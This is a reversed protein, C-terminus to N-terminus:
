TWEKKQIELKPAWNYKVKNIGQHMSAIVSQLCNRCIHLKHGDSSIFSLGIDMRKVLNSGETYRKLYLFSVTEVQGKKSIIQTKENILANCFECRREM